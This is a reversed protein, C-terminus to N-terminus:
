LCQLNALSVGFPKEDQLFCTQGFKSFGQNLIGRSKPTTERSVLVVGLDLNSHVVFTKKSILSVLRIPKTM